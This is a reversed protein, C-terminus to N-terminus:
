LKEYLKILKEVTDEWHFQKKPIDIFQNNRAKKVANVINQSSSPEIMIVKWSAVEPISWANTTILPMDLASTEAVNFGFWEALSPIIVFDCALIHKWIDEYKVNTIMEIKETSLKMRKIKESIFDFRKKENSPVILFAKFDPIEKIIDPIADLYYELWKSIGPRWWFFWVFKWSLSYIEKIEDIEEQSFRDRSWFDYDIWNYVTELQTDRIWTYVRLSNKTYNSVCIFKNFHFNFIFREFTKFFFWKLWMFRYWLNGFIEHVTIVVKKKLLLWIMSSPIAANYTTTHIIDHNKWLILWKFFAYFMFDYRNHWVRFIELNWDKEYGLLDKRFKTTLVTVKVWKKLLRTIVSYFLTEVGWNHPKYLELIFLIRM